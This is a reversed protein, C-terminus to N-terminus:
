PTKGENVKDTRTFDYAYLFEYTERKGREFEGLSPLSISGFVARIMIVDPHERWVFQALMKILIERLADHDTRGIQDLLGAVRLQAAASDVHPIEYEVRGDPYHLEFVLKYSAPVNPAFYGYGREIGAVDLYTQIVQRELNSAPLYQGLLASAAVEAKQSYRDFSPPFITVGRAVLWFTERCSVTIVLLFHLGFCAM